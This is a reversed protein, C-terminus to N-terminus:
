GLAEIELEALWRVLEECGPRRLPQKALLKSLLLAVDHTAEARSSRLDPPAATRHDRALQQPDTSAFPPQGTLLEFLLVGLCYIDSAPTLRGSSSFAEPAAYRPEDPAPSGAQCEESELRRCLALDILTAHGQPSVLVHAPRLQGHLWGAAHLASLAEAVQRVIWLATSIPLRGASAAILESLSLGELLPLVILPTEGRLSAALVSILHPHQV